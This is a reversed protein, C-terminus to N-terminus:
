FVKKYLIYLALLIMLVTYILKILYVLVNFMKKNKINKKLYNIPKIYFTTALGETYIQKIYEKM